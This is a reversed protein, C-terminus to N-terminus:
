IKNVDFDCSSPRGALLRCIIDVGIVNEAAAASSPAELAPWSEWAGGFVRRSFAPAPLLGHVEASLALRV